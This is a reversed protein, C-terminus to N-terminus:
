SALKSDISLLPSPFIEGSSCALAVPWINSFISAFPSPRTVAASIVAACWFIVPLFGSFPSIVATSFILVISVLPSLTRVTSSYAAPECHINWCISM